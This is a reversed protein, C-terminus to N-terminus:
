GEVSLWMAMEEALVMMRAQSGVSMGERRLSGSVLDARQLGLGVGVGFSRMLMAAPQVTDERRLRREGGGSEFRYMTRVSGLMQAVM